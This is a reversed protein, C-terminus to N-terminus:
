PLTITANATYGAPTTATVKVKGTPAILPDNPEVSVIFDVPYITNGVNAGSTGSISASADKLNAADISMTTGNPPANGNKDSVNVNYTGDGNDTVVLAISHSSMVLYQTARITVGSKTCVNIDETQCLVGNYIGNGTTRVGNKDYDVFPETASDYTFNQNSDLFAEALDNTAPNFLDTSQYFGDGNLDTFSENGQAFGLITVKGDGRPEQSTFNVKCEGKEDTICSADVKGASAWFSVATGAPPPNNFADALRMTVEVIVGDVEYSEPNFTSASISISDQDPVGTSVRLESSQTSVSTDVVTATVRIPTAILGAQVNVSAYGNLDTTQVVTSACNSSNDPDALCLGGVTTNLAMSVQTGNIPAGTSGLVRFRVKSVETNGTGKLTILTPAADVFVITQVTDAAVNITAQATKVVGNLSATATIKDAGSCGSATYTVTAQGNVTNVTSITAGSLDTFKATQSAVCNSTLTVAVGTSVLSNTSSVVNITLSTSGGASLTGSGIGVGIVGEQFTDDFGYGLKQPSTTDVSSASSASSDTGGGTTAASSSSKYQALPGNDTNGGGCATLTLAVLAAGVIKVFKNAEM